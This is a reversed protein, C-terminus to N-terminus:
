VVGDLQSSAGGVSAVLREHAAKPLTNSLWLFDNMDEAELLRNGSLDFVKLWVVLHKSQRQETVSALGELAQNDRALRLVADHRWPFRWETLGRSKLYARAHPDVLTILCIHAGHELYAALVRLLPAVPLTGFRERLTYQTGLETAEAAIAGM